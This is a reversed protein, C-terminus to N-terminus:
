MAVAVMAMAAAAAAMMVVVAMVLMTVLRNGAPFALQSNDPLPAEDVDEGTKDTASSEVEVRLGFEVDRPLPARDRRREM